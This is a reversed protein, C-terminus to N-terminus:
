NHADEPMKGLRQEQKENGLYEVKEQTARLQESQDGTRSMPNRLSDPVRRLTVISVTRWESHIEISIKQIRRFGDELVWWFAEGKCDQSHKRVKM